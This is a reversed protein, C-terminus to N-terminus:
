RDLPWNAARNPGAVFVIAVILACSAVSPRRTPPTASSPSSTRKEPEPWVRPSPTRSRGRGVVPERIAPERAGRVDAGASGADIALETAVTTPSSSSPRGCGSSIRGFGECRAPEVPRWLGPLKACGSPEGRGQRAASRRRAVFRATQGIVLDGVRVAREAQVRQAVRARTRVDADELLFREDGGVDLM